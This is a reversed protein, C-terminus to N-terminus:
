DRMWRSSASSLGRPSSVRLAQQKRQHQLWLERAILLVIITLTTIIVVGFIDSKSKRKSASKGAVKGNIPKLAKNIFEKPISSTNLNKTLIDKLRKVENPSLGDPITKLLTLALEM